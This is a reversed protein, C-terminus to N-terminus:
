EAEVLYKGFGIEPRVELLDGHWSEKYVSVGIRGCLNFKGAPSASRQDPTALKLHIFACRMAQRNGVHIPKVRIQKCKRLTLFILRKPEGAAPLWYNALFTM